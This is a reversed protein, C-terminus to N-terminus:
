RAAARSGSSRSAAVGAGRGGRRAFAAVLMRDEGQDFREDRLHGVDTINQVHLVDIGHYLVVRRILDALLFTRLNGVHAFRYVTPGCTYMGIRGTEIPVLPQVARSLTNRFRLTM